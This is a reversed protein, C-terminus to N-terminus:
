ASRRPRFDKLLHAMVPEYLPQDFVIGVTDPEVWLITAPQFALGPLRIMLHDEPRIAWALREVMCGSLSLDLVALEMLMGSRTRCHAILRSSQFSRPDSIM